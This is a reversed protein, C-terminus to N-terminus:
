IPEKSYFYIINIFNHNHPYCAKILQTIIRENIQSPDDICDLKEVNSQIINEEYKKSSIM